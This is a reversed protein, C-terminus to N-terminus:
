SPSQSLSNTSCRTSPPFVRLRCFVRPPPPVFNFPHSSSTDLHCLSPTSAKIYQLGLLSYLSPSLPLKNGSLISSTYISKLHEPASSFFIFRSSSPNLSILFLFFLCFVPLPRFVLSPSVSLVSLCLLSLESYMRLWHVGDLGVEERERTANAPSPWFSTRRM